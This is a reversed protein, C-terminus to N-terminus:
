VVISIIKEKVYIIKKPPAGALYKKVQPLALAASRVQEESMDPIITMEARVKGNVQVGITKVADKLLEPDADPWPELHVSATRGLVTHWAEESLHPVFPALLRVFRELAGRGVTKSKQLENLCVMLASVATNFSRREFDQGARLVTRDIIALEEPPSVSLISVTTLYQWLRKIFRAVGQLNTDSWLKVQDYEGMFMTYLRFTDAGYKAVIDDPNIVNGRSKSMKQGDPGLIMGHQVRRQYPESTPVVKQDYLFKHWFRSYLLHLTTHEAGGNYLDVPLWYKLKKSDALQKKNRPDIYRLFYWSSGAWNPMTDTERKAAGNCNPCKVNVWEKIKALPSEGTDTPEYYEVDPLELPLDKENLPVYGCKECIVIPIPEGWYHQRSFIWDRLKYRVTMEGGVAETIAARAKESSMGDFKGSNVLTGEGIYLEGEGGRLNLPPVEAGGRVALPPQSPNNESQGAVVQAIPLKCKKAFEFDRQDHAPVAMIAGTGYGSLIYDAVWIPIEENNAPNIAKIGKLEVGTKEKTEQRERETKRA